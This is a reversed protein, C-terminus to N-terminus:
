TANRLWIGQQDTFSTLFDCPENVKSFVDDGDVVAISFGPVKWEEMLEAVYSNFKETFPNASAADDSTLPKQDAFAQAAMTFICLAIRRM